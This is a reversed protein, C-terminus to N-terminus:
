VENCIRCVPYGSPCSTGGCTYPYGCSADPGTCNRPSSADAGMVTGAAEEAAEVEFAEVSLKEPDLRLKKM